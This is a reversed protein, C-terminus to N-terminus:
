ARGGLHLELPQTSNYLSVSNTGINDVVYDGIKQGNRYYNSSGAFEIIALRRESTGVIGRLQPEPNTAVPQSLANTGGRTSTIPIQTRASFPALFPNRAITKATPTYGEPLVVTLPAVAVQEPLPAEIQVTEASVQAFLNDIMNPVDYRCAFHTSSLLIFAAIIVHAFNDNPKTNAMM